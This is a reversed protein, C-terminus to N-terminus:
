NALWDTFKNKALSDRDCIFVYVIYGLLASALLLNVIPVFALGIFIFLVIRPLCKGGRDNTICYRCFLACLIQVIAAITFLICNTDEIM